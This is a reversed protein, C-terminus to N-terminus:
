YYGLTNTLLFLNAGVIMKLTYNNACFARNWKKYISFCGNKGIFVM